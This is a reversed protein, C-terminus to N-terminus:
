SDSGDVTVCCLHPPMTVSCGGLSRFAFRKPLCWYHPLFWNHGVLHLPPARALVPAGAALASLANLSKTFGRDHEGPRADLTVFVSFAGANATVSGGLREVTRAMSAALKADVCTSFLM